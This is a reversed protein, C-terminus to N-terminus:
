ASTVLNILRDPIYIVQGPAVDSLVRRVADSALAATLAEDRTASAPLTLRARLKGDVQVIITVTAARMAEADAEPWPQQHIFGEGGVRRWLEETIYPAYPALLRLLTQAEERTIDSRAALEGSYRMLEAIATNYKLAATDDGVKRIVQHLTRRAEAQPSAGSLTSGREVGIRWVRELFRVVGAIGRDSFDGGLEYPGMFMLYVRLADAGYRTMYEDPNVVNGKSKSIKAGNLTITGNARFRKFPEEFDLLGADHMAMAIFRAYLLHLVSHEAGGIYLDAPLWKRTRTPDWAHAHDDSSPYRLYYWASDLFNDMVDTDRTAPQGCVPCATQVFSAVRALPSDGTGTPQYNELDPLRVPLQDDPVAVAGHEPCHIIPIPPGWYRQRSILWDRLHYRAVRRGIRRAEFWAAIAERAEASRQGTFEGSLALRGEGTYPADPAADAGPSGAPSDAPSDAPQGEPQIVFRVPLGM